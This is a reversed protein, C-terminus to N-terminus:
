SAKCFQHIISRMFIICIGWGHDVINTEPCTGWSAAVWTVQKPIEQLGQWHALEFVTTYSSFLLGGMSKKEYYVSKLAAPHQAYTANLHLKVAAVRLEHVLSNEGVM